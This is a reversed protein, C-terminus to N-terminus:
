RHDSSIQPSTSWITFPRDQNAARTTNEREKRKGNTRKNKKRSRNPNEKGRKAPRVGADVAGVISSVAVGIRVSSFSAVIFVGRPEGTWQRGAGRGRLSKSAAVGRLDVDVASSLFSANLSVFSVVARRGINDATAASRVSQGLGLM